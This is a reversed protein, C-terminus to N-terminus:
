EKGDDPSIEWYGGRAGGRRRIVGKTKLKKIYEAVTYRSISLAEAIKAFTAAPNQKIEDFIKQELPTLVGAMKLPTKLPTKTPTKSPTAALGVIL